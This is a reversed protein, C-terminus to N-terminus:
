PDLMRRGVSTACGSVLLNGSTGFVGASITARFEDADEGIEIKQRLRQTGSWVGSSNFLFAETLARYTHGGDHRWIGHGPGRLAPNFGSDASTLTGGRAFTVMAAFPNGLGDETLCDRLTVQVRWTGELKRADSEGGGPDEGKVPTLPTFFLTGGLVLLSSLVVRVSPKGTESRM